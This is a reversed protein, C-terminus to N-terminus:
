SYFHISTSIVIIKLVTFKIFYILSIEKMYSSAIDYILYPSENPLIELNIPNM